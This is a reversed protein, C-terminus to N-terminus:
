PGNYPKQYKNLSNEQSCFNKKSNLLQHYTLVHIVTLNETM